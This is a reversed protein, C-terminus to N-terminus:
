KLEVTIKVIKPTYDHTKLVDFKVNRVGDRGTDQALDEWKTMNKWEQKTKTDVHTLEKYGEGRLTPQYVDIKKRRLRERISDDEGGWGWFQNPFGNTKQIDRVSMSLVGGLFKPFDYKQTWAKGIHIPKEPFATYYPVIKKLPLLDVDHFIVYEFKSAAAIRAGINLLAGRNFKRGDDSQEIVLVTWDPHRRHIHSVFQKLQHGRSQEVNDRFPVLICPTGQPFDKVESPSLPIFM